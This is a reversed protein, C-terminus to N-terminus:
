RGALLRGVGDLGGAAEWLCASLPPWWVVDNMLIVVGFSLPLAGTAASWIFGMPGGLKGLLGIAILHRHRVPDRAAWWYALGYLLVFMGVVQWLPPYTPPKLGLVAFIARPALVNLAGWTLNYAAAAILWPRYRHVLAAPDPSLSV